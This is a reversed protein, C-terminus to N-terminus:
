DSHDQQSEKMMEDIRRGEAEWWPKETRFPKNERICRELTEKYIEVAEKGDKPQFDIENYRILDGFKEWYKKYLDCMEKSHLYDWVEKVYFM